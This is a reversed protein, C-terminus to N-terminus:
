HEFIILFNHSVRVAMLQLLEVLQFKQELKEVLHPLEFLAM